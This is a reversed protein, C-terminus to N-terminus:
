PRTEIELREVYFLECSGDGTDQRSLSTRWRFGSDHDADVRLGSARIFDGRRIGKLRSHVADNAPIVHMNSSSQIIEEDAIPAPLDYRTHYWRAGQSIDIRDLVAQDSMAGWGLALDVPALDAALGWYYDERSLVRARLEFGARPRLLFGDLSVPDDVAVPFQRPQQEIRVGPPRDIARQNWDRWGLVLALLTLLILLRKLM